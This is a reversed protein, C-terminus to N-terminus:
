AKQEWTTFIEGVACALINVAYKENNPTRQCYNYKSSGNYSKSGLLSLYSSLLSIMENIWDIHEIIGQSNNESIM